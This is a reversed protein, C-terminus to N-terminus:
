LDHRRAKELYEAARRLKAPDDKFQGIAMNCPHCLFGRVIGTRHCHDVARAKDGCIECPVGGDLIALQEANLGYKQARSKHARCLRVGHAKGEARRACTTVSCPHGVLGDVAARAYHTPCLGHNASHKLCGNESCLKKRFLGASRAEQYHIGCLRRSRVNGDCGPRMCTNDKFEGHERAYAYHTDCLGRGVVPKNCGQRACPTGFAGTQQAKKYHKNCLGRANIPRGCSDETCISRAM